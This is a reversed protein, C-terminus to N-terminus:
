LVCAELSLLRGNGFTAALDAAGMVIRGIETPSTAEPHLEAALRVARWIDNRSFAGSLAPTIADFAAELEILTTMTVGGEGTMPGM